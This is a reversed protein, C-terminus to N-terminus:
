SLVTTGDAAIAIVTVVLPPVNVEVPVAVAVSDILAVVPIDPATVRFDVVVTPFTVTVPLPPPTDPVTSTVNAPEAVVKLSDALGVMTWIEVGVVTVICSISAAPFLASLPPAAASENATAGDLPVTVVAGPVIATPLLLVVKTHVAGAVTGAPPTAVRVTVPVRDPVPAVVNVCVTCSLTWTAPAANLSESLADGVLAGASPLVMTVMVPFSTSWDPTVMMVDGPVAMWNEVVLPVNRVVVTVVLVLSPM